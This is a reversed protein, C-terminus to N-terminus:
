ELKSTKGEAQVTSVRKFALHTGFWFSVFKKEKQWKTLM